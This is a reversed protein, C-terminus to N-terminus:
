LIRWTVVDPPLHQGSYGPTAVRAVTPTTPAPPKAGLRLNM